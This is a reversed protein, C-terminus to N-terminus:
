LSDPFSADLAAGDATTVDDSPEFGSEGRVPIRIETEDNDIRVGATTRSDFFMADTTAAPSTSTWGRWPM